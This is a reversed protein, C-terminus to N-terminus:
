AARAIPDFLLVEADDSEVPLATPVEETGWPLESDPPDLPEPLEAELLVAAMRELEARLAGLEASVAVPDTEEIPLAMPIADADAVETPGDSRAERRDLEASRRALDAELREQEACWRTEYAVLKSQWAELRLRLQWLDYADTRRRVDARALRHERADLEAERRRLTDALREMEAVTIREAEQWLARASALQAFQEALIRRRDALTAHEAAVDTSLAQVAARELKLREERETLEAALTGLDRDAARDLAVRLEDPPEATPASPTLTEARLAARRQELEDLLLRANRVRADLAAAEERLATVASQAKATADTTAKERAALETARADLAAAQDAQFRNTEDWEAALRKQRAALAAWATRQHDREAASAAHFESQAKNFHATRTDLAARDADLRARAESFAHHLKRAIRGGLKSARTREREAARHAARAEALHRTAEAEVAAVASERATLRREREDPNLGM